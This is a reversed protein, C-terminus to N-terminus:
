RPKRETQLFAGVAPNTTAKWWSWCRRECAIAKEPTLAAFHEALDQVDADTTNTGPRVRECHGLLARADPPPLIFPLVKGAVQGHIHAIVDAKHAKLSPALEDIAVAPGEVDLHQGDPNLTVKLGLETAMTLLAAATM